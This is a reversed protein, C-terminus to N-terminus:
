FLISTVRTLGCIVYKDDEFVKAVWYEESFIKKLLNNLKTSSSFRQERRARMITNIEADILYNHCGLYFVHNTKGNEYFWLGLVCNTKTNTHSLPSM